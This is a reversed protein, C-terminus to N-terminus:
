HLLRSLTESPTVFKHPTRCTHYGNRIDLLVVFQCVVAAATHDPLASRRHTSTTDAVSCLYTFRSLPGPVPARPSPTLSPGGAARSLSLYFHPDHRVPGIYPLNLFNASSLSSSLSFTGQSYSIFMYPPPPCHRAPYPMHVRFAVLFDFMEVLMGITPWKLFVLVIGALFCTTGRLKNKRAFFYFTKQPGIILFLGSLFLIQKRWLIKADLWYAFYIHNPIIWGQGKEAEPSVSSLHSVPESQQPHTSTSM